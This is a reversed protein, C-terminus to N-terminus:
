NGCSSCCPYIDKVESLRKETINRFIATCDAKTHYSNGYDTIFYSSVGMSACRPCPYYKGGSKNRASKLFESSIVKTKIDLYKCNKKLHYRTGYTTMYVIKDSENENLDNDKVFGIWLHSRAHQTLKIESNPIPLFPINVKYCAVLDVWKNDKKLNSGFLSIGRSGNVIISNNLYEKDSLEEVRNEAYLLGAVSVIANAKNKDKENINNSGKTKVTENVYGYQAMEKATQGLACGIHIQIRVIEILFGMSLIFFVFIPLVMAAEVTMAAKLKKQKIAKRYNQRLSNNQKCFYHSKKRPFTFSIEFFSSFDNSFGNYFLM